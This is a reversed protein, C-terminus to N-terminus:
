HVSGRAPDQLLNQNRMDASGKFQTASHKSKCKGEMERQSSEQQEDAMKMSNKKWRGKRMYVEPNHWETFPYCM